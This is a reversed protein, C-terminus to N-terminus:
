IGRSICIDEPTHYDVAEYPQYDTLEDDTTTVRSAWYAHACDTMPFGCGRNRAFFDRVFHQWSTLPRRAKKYSTNFDEIITEVSMQAIFERDVPRRIPVLDYHTWGSYAGNWM